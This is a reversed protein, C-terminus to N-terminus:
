TTKMGAKARSNGRDLKLVAQFERRANLGMGLEVYLEGLDLRYELNKPSKNVAQRLYSVAKRPDQEFRMVLRALRFYPLGDDPELDVARQYQSIAERFNQFQEASAGAQIFGEAQQGRAEIRVQKYLARYEKNKPDFQCALHLSSVAKTPNGGEYDTKGQEFYRKARGVRGRMQKRMSRMAKNRDTTRRKQRAKAKAMEEPNPPAAPPADSAPESKAKTASPEAKKPRSDRDHRRRSDTDSLTKYAKTIQIFIFDLHQAYDGLNRRFHRDPHWQRSLTYYATQIAEQEASTEVGLLAYHDGSQAHLLLHDLQGCEDTSLNGREMGHIMSAETRTIRGYETKPIAM